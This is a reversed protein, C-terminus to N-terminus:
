SLGDMRHRRDRAWSRPGRRGEGIQRLAEYLDEQRDEPAHEIAVAILDGFDLDPDDLMERLQESGEEDRGPRRARTFRATM